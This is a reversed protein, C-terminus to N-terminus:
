TPGWPRWSRCSFTPRRRTRYSAPCSSPSWVTNGEITTFQKGNESVFVVVGAHGTWHAKGNKYYQWIVISGPEPTESIPYKGNKKFNNFTAVAGASFLKELESDFLGNCRAYAERWVLEVFLACWAFKDQFGVARMKEDFKPNKFGMNGRIEEQGLYSHATDVIQQQIKKM